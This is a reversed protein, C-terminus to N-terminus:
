MPIIHAHMPCKTHQLIAARGDCSAPTAPQTGRALQAKYSTLIKSKEGVVDRCFTHPTFATGVTPHRSCGGPGSAARRPRIGLTVSPSTSHPQAHHGHLLPKNLRLHLMNQTQATM